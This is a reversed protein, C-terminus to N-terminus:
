KVQSFANEILQVIQNVPQTFVGAQGKEFALLWAAYGESIDPMAADEQLLETVSAELAQRTVPAHPLHDQVGGEYLPNKLKLGDVYIHYISQTGLGRDIRAIFLRSAEEGPRTQYRWIQGEEFSAALAPAAALSLLVIVALVAKKMM